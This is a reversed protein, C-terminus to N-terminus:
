QNTISNTKKPYIRKCKMCVHHPLLPSQCYLCLRYFQYERRSNQARQGYRRIRQVRPTTKRKPVALQLPVIDTTNSPLIHPSTNYINLLITHRSVPTHNMYHDLSMHNNCCPLRNQITNNSQILSLKNCRNILGDM